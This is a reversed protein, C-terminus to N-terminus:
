IILFKTHAGIHPRVANKTIGSVYADGVIRWRSESSDKRLIFPTHLGFIVVVADGANVNTPGMGLRGRSTTFIKRGRLINQRLEHQIHDELPKAANNFRHMPLLAHDKETTDHPSTKQELVDELLRSTDALRKFHDMFSGDRVERNQPLLKIRLLRNERSLNESVLAESVHAIDKLGRISRELTKTEEIVSDLVCGRVELYGNDHVRIQSEYGMGCKFESGWLPQFRCPHRWDPVWSPLFSASIKEPQFSAALHLLAYGDSPNLLASAMRTYVSEVSLSYDLTPALANFTADEESALRILSFIRDRDDSCCSTQFHLLLDLLSKGDTTEPQRIKKNLEEIMCLKRLTAHYEDSRSSDHRWRLIGVAEIFDYWAIRRAGCIIFVTKAVAVEQIVWRRMFWSRKFFNELAEMEATHIHSQLGRTPNRGILELWQLCKAGILRDDDEGTWVLVSSARSYVYIMNAVQTNREHVNNQDICVADVWMLINWTPKRVARLASDLSETIPLKTSGCVLMHPKKESGWAYSLAAYPPHIDKDDFLDVHFISCTLGADKETASHLEILRISFDRQLSRYTYDPLESDGMRQAAKIYPSTLSKNPTIAISPASDPPTTRYPGALADVRVPKKPM